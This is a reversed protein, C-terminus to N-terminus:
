YYGGSSRNGVSGRTDTKDPSEWEVLFIRRYKLVEAGCRPYKSFMFASFQEAQPLTKFYKRKLSYTM